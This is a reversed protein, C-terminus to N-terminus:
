YTTKTQGGPAQGPSLHFTNNVPHTVDEQRICSVLLSFVRDSVLLKTKFGQVKNQLVPVVHKPRLGNVGSNFGEACRQMTLSNVSM